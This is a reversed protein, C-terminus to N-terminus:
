LCAAPAAVVAAGPDRAFPPGAHSLQWKVRRDDM